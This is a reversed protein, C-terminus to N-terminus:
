EKIFNKTLKSVLYAMVLMFIIKALVTIDTLCDQINKGIFVWFYVMPLKGIILATIFKKESMNSIGAAINVPFAPAFPIAFFLVLNSFSIKDVFKRFDKVKKNYKKFKINHKLKKNIFHSFYRSLYFACICGCITGIWSILLAVISGFTVVNLAIFVSLPLVPIISELFIIFFGFLPGLDGIISSVFNVINTILEAM